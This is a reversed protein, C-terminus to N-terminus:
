WVLPFTIEIRYYNRLSMNSLTVSSMKSLCFFVHAPLWNNMTFGKPIFRSSYNIRCEMM